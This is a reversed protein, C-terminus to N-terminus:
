RPVVLRRLESFGIRLLESVTTDLERLADLPWKWNNYALQVLGQAIVIGWLGLATWACLAIGLGVIALGSVISAGAFPVKNLTTLFHAAVSHNMELCAILLMAMLVPTDLLTVQRGLPALLEHGIAVLLVAGVAFILWSSVVSLGVAQRLQTRDGRAQAANMRPLQLIALLSAVGSILLLLQLTLGYSGAAKLGLYSSVVLTNARVILFGGLQVVFLRWANPWLARMVEVASPQAGALSTSQRALPKFYHHALWRGAISSMVSAIGLAMLQQNLALGLAALLVFSGRTVVMIKSNQGVDGRGLIFASYYGFYVNITIGTAYVVWAFIAHGGAADVKPTLTTLYASGGIVLCVAVLAAIVRYSTRGGDILAALLPENVSSGSRAADLGVNSLSYAGAFVYAATRSLTPQLALEFLQAMAVLTLFVFWLGVQESPLTLMVVPLLLVGSGINVLQAAYGWAVDARRLSQTM